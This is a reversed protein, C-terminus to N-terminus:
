PGPSIPAPPGVYGKALAGKPEVVPRDDRDLKILEVKGGKPTHWSIWQANMWGVKATPGDTPATSAALEVARKVRYDALSDYKPHNLVVQLAGVAALMAVAGAVIAASPVRRRPTTPEVHPLLLQLALLGILYLCGALVFPPAYSGSAVSRGVFIQFLAAGFVGFATQIGVTTAIAPKPLTDSVLTYLNGSWGQHAAAALSILAIAPYVSAVGLVTPVKLLLSVLTVPVACLACVLMATKRARGLAMGRGLLNSSLWGGGVSGFDAVIFVIPLCLAMFAPPLKFEDVLFKPLWTLYFWWPADTFFKAAAVAYVPRMGFVERVGIAQTSDVPDQRIYALEEPSIKPHEDPRRYLRQWFALWVMGVAGLLLFCTRWGIAEALRVALLPALIAGVNSGANFWGTALAREKKPFWDAVTRVSAPFNGSEGVGLFFRITAFGGLSTALCHAMSALSWVLFSTGLGLRVGVQDIWRGVFTMGFGYALLFCVNILALDVPGLRLDNEFFPILLSFLQRDFYNITTAFFLLACITWRVRSIPQVM